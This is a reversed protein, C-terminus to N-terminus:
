NDRKQKTGDKNWAALWHSFLNRIGGARILASFFALAAWIGIAAAVFLITLTILSM